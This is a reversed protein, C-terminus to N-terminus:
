KNVKDSLKLQRDPYRQQLRKLLAGARALREDYEEYDWQGPHTEGPWTEHSVFDHIALVRQPSSTEVVGVLDGGDPPVLQFTLRTDFDFFDMICPAVVVDGAVEVQYAIGRSVESYSEELIIVQRRNGADLTAIEYYEACGSMVVLLLPLLPLSSHPRRRNM